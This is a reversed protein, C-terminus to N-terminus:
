INVQITMRQTHTPMPVCYTRYKDEIFKVGSGSATYDAYLINREGFPTDFVLDSGIIQSRINAIDYTAM